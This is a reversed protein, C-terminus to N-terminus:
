PWENCVTHRKAPRQRPLHTRRRRRQFAIHIRIFSYKLMRHKETAEKAALFRFPRGNVRSVRADRAEFPEVVNVDGIRRRASWEMWQREIGVATTNQTWIVFITGFYCMSCPLVRTVTKASHPVGTLM